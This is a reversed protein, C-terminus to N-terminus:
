PPIVIRKKDIWRCNKSVFHKQISKGTVHNKGIHKSQINNTAEHENLYFYNESISVFHLLMNVFHLLLIYYYTSANKKEFFLSAVQYEFIFYVVDIM